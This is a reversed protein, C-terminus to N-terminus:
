AGLIQEYEGGTAHTGDFYFQGFSDFLEVQYTEDQPTM